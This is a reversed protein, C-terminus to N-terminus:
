KKQAKSGWMLQYLAHTAPLTVLAGIAAPGAWGAHPPSFLMVACLAVFAPLATLGVGALVKALWPAKAAVRWPRDEVYAVVGSGALVLWLIQATAWVWGVWSGFFEEPPRQLVAYYGLLLLGLVPYAWVYVRSLYGRLVLVSSAIAISSYTGVLVGLALVFSFGHLTSATGGRWYLVTVVMLTTLSTWITRTLTQNISRNCVDISLDGFKGRNERIRDFVVITDNLSYGILTLFAGVMPLNIRMDTILFPNGSWWAAVLGTCAVAGLTILVDHVLAVVAAVGYGVKAFRFWMYLVIAVLSFVIAIVAKDWMEGAMRPEFSTTSAFVEEPGLSFRVVETWFEPNTMAGRRGAYDSRVWVEFATHEGRGGALRTGEIRYFVTGALDPHRDRLFAEIRRRLGEVMHPVSVGVKIRIKELFEREEPPIFRTVAYTSEDGEKMEGDPAAPLRAATRALRERIVEETIETTQISEVRGGRSEPRMDEFKRSLVDKVSAEDAAVKRGDPGISESSVSIIFRSIGKERGEAEFPLEQVTATPFVEAVRERVQAIPVGAQGEPAKLAFEVQTGGTFEIDYKSRGRSYFAVAGALVVVGSCLIAGRAFRMWNVNPTRFLQLMTMRKVIGLRVSAEFTMRTMILATFMSTGIGVIIVVAFGKVEETALQPLLLVFAPILTTINADLITRFARSYARRIAFVLSGEHGKEERLREFVLVNADVSMGITLILGAIGPLTWATGGQENGIWWMICVVLLLNLGLALDAVVGAYLYYAAMFVAVLALGILIAKTGKRINDDGLEPGVTREKIPDGLSVALKGSNLVTVVEDREQTRGRYGEIMGGSSLQARLVPASQIEHDLIIALHRDKNEPKTLQSFRRQARPKIRFSVIPDGQSTDPRAEALDEGGVDQGDGVDVLVEVTRMERDVAYVFNWADLSGEQFRKYGGTMPYWRYRHDRPDPSNSPSKGAEKLRLIREFNAKQADRVKDAVIRFELVGVQRLLRKVREVGPRVELKRKIRERWQEQAKEDGPNITLWIAFERFPGRTRNLGVVRWETREAPPAQRVAEQIQNDVHELHLAPDTQVALRTKGEFKKYEPPVQRAEKGPGTKGDNTIHEATLPGAEVAVRTRGGPLVIELRRKGVARVVYGGMGSPDIRKAIVDKVAKAEPPEVGEEPPRLEYVLSTGGQLDIGLPFLYRLSPEPDTAYHVALKALPVGVIIAVLILSIIYVGKNM